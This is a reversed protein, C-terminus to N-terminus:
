RKGKLYKVKVYEEYRNNVYNVESDFLNNYNQNIFDFNSNFEENSLTKNPLDVHIVSKKM